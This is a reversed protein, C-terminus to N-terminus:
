PAITKTQDRDHMRRRAEEARVARRVAQSIQSIAEGVAAERELRGLDSEDGVLQEM